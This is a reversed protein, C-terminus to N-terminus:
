FSTDIQIDRVCVFDILEQFVEISPRGGSMRLIVNDIDFEQYLARRPNFFGAKRWRREGTAAQLALYVILQRIDKGAINRNVTKVEFLSSGISIDAQCSLIFGAGPIKPYFEIAGKGKRQRFFREYNLALELVEELENNELSTTIPKSSSEYREVTIIACKMASKVITENKFVQKVSIGKEVAMKTIFFAFEAIVSSDGSKGKKDVENLPLGIINTLREKYGENIMHVLSPNLLPLLEAWFGSFSHAFTRESIM